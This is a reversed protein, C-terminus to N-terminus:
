SAAAYWPDDALAPGTTRVVGPVRGTVLGRCLERHEAQEAATMCGVAALQADTALSRAVAGSKTMVLPGPRAQVGCLPCYRRASGRRKLSREYARTGPWVRALEWTLGAQRAVLLVHAGHTTGHEALRRALERPGGEAFGTYHQFCSGAPAGPYPVYPESLHVLYVIGPVNVRPGGVVGGCLCPGASSAAAGCTGCQYALPAPHPWFEGSGAAWGTVPCATVAQGQDGRAGRGRWAPGARGRLPVPGAGIVARWM